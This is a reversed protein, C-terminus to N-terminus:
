GRDRRYADLDKRGFAHPLLKDLRKPGDPHDILMDAGGHEM